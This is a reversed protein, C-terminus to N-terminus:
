TQPDKLNKVSEQPFRKEPLSSDRVASLVSVFAFPKLVREYRKGCIVSFASYQLGDSAAANMFLFPMRFYPHRM